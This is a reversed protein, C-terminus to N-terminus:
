GKLVKVIKNKILNNIFQTKNKANNINKKINSSFLYQYQEAKINNKYDNLFLYLHKKTTASYDWKDFLTLVGNRDIKAITSDYSQFVKSGHEDSLLFQNCNYFQQVRM